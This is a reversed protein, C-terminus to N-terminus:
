IEYLKTYHISYSTIVLKGAKNNGYTKRNWQNKNGHKLHDSNVKRVEDTEYLKTYHISYSTIVAVTQFREAKDQATAKQIIRNMEKLFPVNMDAKKEISVAKMPLTKNDLKGDFAEFLIKGLAYIDATQNAYRFESFQEPAMYFTIVEYLM